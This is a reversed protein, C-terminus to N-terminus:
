NMGPLVQNDTYICNAEKVDSRLVRDRFKTHEWKGEWHEPDIFTFDIMLTNGDNIVRYREIITLQDGTIIGAQILHNSDTFGTTEIILTDGEWHGLSEGHWNRDLKSESVRERGDLYIVRYDNNLRSVMFIATPYQLMMLSGYRTMYRPMGPPYCLATPDGYRVGEESAEIYEDFFRDRICM